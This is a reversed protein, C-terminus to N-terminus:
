TDNTSRVACPTSLDGMFWSAFAMVVYLTLHNFDEILNKFMSLTATYTERGSPTKNPISGAVGDGHLPIRM